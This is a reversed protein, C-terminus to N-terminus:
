NFMGTARIFRIPTHMKSNSSISCGFIRRRFSHSHSICPFFLAMTPILAELIDSIAVPVPHHTAVLQAALVM